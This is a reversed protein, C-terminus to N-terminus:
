GSMGGGAGFKAWKSQPTEETEKRPVNKIRATPNLFLRDELKLLMDRMRNVTIEAQQITKYLQIRDSPDECEDIDDNMKSLLTEQGEIEATMLCYRNIIMEDLGEVYDIDKYLRKLKKFTRIAVPNQMVKDSPRYKIHSKLKNEQEQRAAIESKTLHKKGEALHLEIPKAPRGAM